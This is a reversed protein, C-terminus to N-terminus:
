GIKINSGFTDHADTVELAKGHAEDVVVNGAKAVVPAIHDGHEGKEESASLEDANKELVRWETGAATELNKGRTEKVFVFCFITALIDFGMFILFTWAGINKIMYPSAFSFCFSSSWHALMSVALGLSRIRTPFVEPVYAWPLPGWSCNYIQQAACTLREHKQHSPGQRAKGHHGPIDNGRHSQRWQYCRRRHSATQDAFTRSM